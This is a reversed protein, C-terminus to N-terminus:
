FSGRRPDIILKCIVQFPELREVLAHRNSDSSHRSNYAPLTDPLYSVQYKAPDLKDFLRKSFGQYDDLVAVKILSM